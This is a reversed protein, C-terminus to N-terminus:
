DPLRSLTLTLRNPGIAVRDVRAHLQQELQGFVAQIRADVATRVAPSAPVGAVQVSHSAYLLMGQRVALEGKATVPVTLTAKEIRATTIVRGSALRVEPSTIRAEALAGQLEPEAALMANIEAASFQVTTTLAKGHRTAESLRDVASSLEGLKREAIQSQRSDAPEYLGEAKPQVFFLRLWLLGILMLAGVTLSQALKGSKRARKM